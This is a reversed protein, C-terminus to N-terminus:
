LHIAALFLSCIGKEDSKRIQGIKGREATHIIYMYSILVNYIYMHLIYIYIIYTYLSPELNISVAPSYYFISGM